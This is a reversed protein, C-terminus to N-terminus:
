SYFQMISVVSIIDLVLMLLIYVVVESGQPLRFWRKLAALCELWGLNLVYMTPIVAPYAYRAVPIFPFYFLYIAGRVWTIGWAMLLVIAFFILIDWPMVRRRRWLAVAAGALGVVTFIGLVRYPKHGILSVHGWAFKAWYSRALRYFTNIYYWGSSSRDLISYLILSPRGKDPIFRVGLADVWPHVWLWSQEMSGNRLLNTFEYEGWVGEAAQEDHFVPPVEKSQKGPVLVIGDYCVLAPSTKGSVFPALMIWARRVSSPLTGRVIYFKPETGLEVQNSTSQLGEVSRLIPLRVITPESAWMWVGLTFPEGRISDVAEGPLLQRVQPSNKNEGSQMDICLADEGFPAQQTEVKTPVNQNTQRYWFRVDGWGFILIFGLIISVGMVLWTIKLWKTGHLLSLILVGPLLIISIYATNKTFYSLVVAIIVLVFDLISFGRQILRVSGWLFFSFVAIAASDSNVATMVDVFGPLMALSLPMLIRLLHGSPTMEVAVGYAFWVTILLLFLSVFRAVFLQTNVDAFKFLRVPISAILYYLPPEGLQQYPGIWVPEESPTDLNLGYDLNEFFGHDLMSLAVELRMSLDYDGEEPIDHRFAVLWVYEFHNPEDYHQWPPIIFVYIVGHLFAFILIALLAQRERKPSIRLSEQHM